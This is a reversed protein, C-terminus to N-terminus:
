YINSTPVYTDEPPYVFEDSPKQTNEINTIKLIPIDGNLYGKKITGTLKVWSLNEFDSINDYECLFGVVVTQSAENIIMNRAIVFQNDNLYDIKYIYGTFTIEKGIYNDLNDHVAKLTNTYQSSTIENTSPITNTDNVVFNESKFNKIKSFLKSISFTLFFLCVLVFFTLLGKLLKNKNIKFNYIHM